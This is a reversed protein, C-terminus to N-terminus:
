RVAHLVAGAGNPPPSLVVDRATARVCGDQPTGALAGSLSLSLAGTATWEGSVAIPEGSTCALIATRLADIARRAAAEAAADPAPPASTHPATTAPSSPAHPDLRVRAVETTRRTAFVAGRLSTVVCTGTEVPVGPTETRTAVGDPGITIAITAEHEVPPCDAIAALVVRADELATSSYHTVAEADGSTRAISVPPGDPVCVAERHAAFGHGRVDTVCTYSQRRGCGVAVYGGAGTPRTIAQPCSLEARARRSAGAEYADAGGGCATALGLALVTLGRAAAM